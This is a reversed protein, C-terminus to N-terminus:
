KKVQEIATDVKASDQKVVTTSDATVTIKNQAVLGLPLLLFLFIIKKM